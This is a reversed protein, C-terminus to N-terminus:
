SSVTRSSKNLFYKSEVFCNLFEKKEADTFRDYFENFYLLFQYINNEFIREQQVNLIRNEVEDMQQEVAEIGDYMKYLRIEMDQYKRDYHRDTIDLNYMQQGLKDKAGNLQRLQKNLQSLETELEKTDIQAGIRQRISQEFKPKNVLDRIVEEVAADVMEQKWQRKYGCRHGNVTTRHKCAYYYYDKYFTGDKKKKRNVNGYMGAGCIPCCLIGSLINEHDLNYIRESKVGTISRKKQALQWIEESVIAEHIGDYM